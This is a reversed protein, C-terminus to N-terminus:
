HYVFEHVFSYQYNPSLLRALSNLLSRTILVKAFLFKCTLFSLCHIIHICIFLLLSIYLLSLFFRVLILLSPHSFSNLFGWTCVYPSWPTFRNVITELPQLSMRGSFNGTLLGTMWVCVYMCTCVTVFLFITLFIPQTHRYFNMKSVVVIRHAYAFPYISRV